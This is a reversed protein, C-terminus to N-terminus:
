CRGTRSSSVNWFLHKMCTGGVDGGVGVTYVRSSCWGDTGLDERLYEVLGRHRLPGRLRGRPRRGVHEVKGHLVHVSDPYTEARDNWECGPGAWSGWEESSNRQLVLSQNKSRGHVLPQVGGEVPRTARAADGKSCSSCSCGGARPGLTARELARGGAGASAGANVNRRAKM